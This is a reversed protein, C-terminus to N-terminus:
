RLLSLISQGSQNAQALMATGAQALVNNKTFKAMESAMDVDRITSEAAATNVIATRLNAVTYALRNQAAGISALATNVATLQTAVDTVTAGASVNAATLGISIAVTDGAAADSVKFSLNQGFIDAGQFNTSDLIRKAENSLTAFESNLVATQSSNQASEFQIFLEKQRELIQQIQNASGEAIQLMANGQEANNVAQTLARTSTRLNNAIALGAADDGAKNIRLGSSLKSMSSDVERQVMFLNKSANLAGVNTNIRM